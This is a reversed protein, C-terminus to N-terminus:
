FPEPATFRSLILVAAETRISELIGEMVEVVHAAHQGDARHRRGEHIADALEVVGRAFECGSFPPHNFPLPRWNGGTEAHRVVSDFREITDVALSGLDGHIELGKQRTHMGVYFNCTLRCQVGSVFELVAIAHDPSAPTFPKGDKTKRDRLLVGGVATVKAVPGFFTTLSSIPYVAVDFVPGVAYFPEPNPHWTEIRGWNVEAFVLRPTGILGDRLAKWLVQQADGM